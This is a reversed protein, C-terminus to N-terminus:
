STLYLMYCQDLGTTQKMIIIMKRIYNLLMPLKSIIQYHLNGCQSFSTPWLLQFSPVNYFQDKRFLAPIEDYVTSKTTNLKSLLKQLEEEDGGMDANYMKVKDFGYVESCSPLKSVFAINYFCYQLFM